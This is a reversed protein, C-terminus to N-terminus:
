MAITHHGSSIYNLTQATLMEVLDLRTEKESKTLHLKKEQCSQIMESLM